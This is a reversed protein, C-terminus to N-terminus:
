QRNVEILKTNVDMLELTKKLQFRIDDRFNEKSEFFSKVDKRLANGYYLSMISVIHDLMGATPNYMKKLKQWNERIWKFMIGRSYPNVGIGMILMISDQVRVKSSISAELARSVLVPDKFAGLAGLAKMKDQPTETESNYLKLFKDFIAPDNRSRAAIGFVAGKINPDIEEEGRTYADFIANAKTITEDDDVYGLAGIAMGRLKTDIPDENPKIVWGLKNLLAKHFKTSTRVIDMEYREGKAILITRSLHGSVSSNAPYECEMMYRNVFRMYESIKIQGSRALAYLDFEAGWADSPQMKGERVRKGIEKLQEEQYRVRYAGSQGYNLKIFRGSAKIPMEKGKMLTRAEGDDTAYHIPIPWLDRFSGNLWTFRKQALTFKGTIEDRTVSVIPHGTMSVWAEVVNTVDMRREEARAADQISNWLDVKTANSYSYSKLYSHLGKRFVDAGVYDDVMRLVICGKHYSIEDFISNIEGPTDVRVSIPHTSAASDSSLAVATDEELFDQMLKWEPYLVSDIKYEMYTAFSENLWLDDWWKMTVLDGFWQHAFEHTIVEAIRQKGGVSIKNLDCLLDSERFTVAGWNEMAGHSFDPVGILDMKPLAFKIAFFKEYQSLSKQAHELAFKALNKKGPTTYVRIKVRDTKGELYEFKGFGLYLLYTSMKPTTNFVIKKKSGSKSTGKIPMNSIGDLEKDLVMTVDFTAKFAPEDVCPMVLRASAPELHTTGMYGQKGNYTYRSRYLGDLTDAIAGSFEIKIQVNGSVRNKATIELTEAKDDARASAAQEGGKAKISVRSIALEKSNLMLKSTPKKVIATIVLRAKYRFSKLDPEIELLYNSPILNDGLTQHTNKKSAM